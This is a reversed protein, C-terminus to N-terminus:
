DFEFMYTDNGLGGNLTEASSFSITLNNIEVNEITENIGTVEFRIAATASFPGSLTHNGTGNDNTDITNLLGFNVGDAAFLM